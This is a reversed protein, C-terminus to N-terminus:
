NFMPDLTTLLRSCRNALPGEEAGMFAWYFGYLNANKYKTKNEM